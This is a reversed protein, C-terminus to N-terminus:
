TKKITIPETNIHSWTLDLFPPFFSFDPIYLVGWAVVLPNVERSESDIAVLEIDQFLWRRPFPRRRCESVLLPARTFPSYSIYNNICRPKLFKEDCFLALRRGRRRESSSPSWYVRFFLVFSLHLSNLRSLFIPRRCFARREEPMLVDNVHAHVNGIKM